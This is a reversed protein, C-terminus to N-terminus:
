WPDEICCLVDLCLAVYTALKSRNASDTCAYVIGRNPGSRHFNVQALHGQIARESFATIRKKYDCATCNFARLPIPTFMELAGTTPIYPREYMRTTRDIKGHVESPHHQNDDYTSAVLECIDLVQFHM